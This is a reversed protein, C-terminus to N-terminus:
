QLSNLSHIIRQKTEEDSVDEPHFKEGILKEYLEIYRDRITAVWEDSMEPVQKDKKVWLIIKM